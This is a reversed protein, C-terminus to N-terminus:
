RVEAQKQSYKSWDFKEAREVPVSREAEIGLRIRNGNIAAVRLEVNDGIKITEGIKRTIVLM